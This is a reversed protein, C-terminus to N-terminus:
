VQMKIFYILSILPMGSFHVYMQCFYISVYVIKVIGSVMKLDGLKAAKLIGDSTKELLHSFYFCNIEVYTLVIVYWFIDHAFDSEFQLM